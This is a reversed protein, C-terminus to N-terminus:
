LEGRLRELLDRSEMPNLAQSRLRDYRQCLLSMEKADSILRGNQQGESYGLKRGERTELIRMPGDLCGHFEVDLPVVQLTVNRPATLELVHDLMSSQARVGGLRRRFVAEEVIFDFPVTPRERLMEQREMRAALQAEAQEDTLLPISNDFVARAYAESQLLGPVLRCEYTCLSVAERELRAWRRFWAALGAEGRTLHRAARRLAGTNGLAEEAREVFAEDPMRRGLEVSAVTHKSYQVRSAFDVRSLGAHERLAQVFAGFTRLSDSPHPERVPEGAAPGEGQATSADEEVEVIDM